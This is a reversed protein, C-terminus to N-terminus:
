FKNDACNFSLVTQDTENLHTCDHPERPGSPFRGEPEGICAHVCPVFDRLIVLGIKPYFHSYRNESNQCLGGVRM